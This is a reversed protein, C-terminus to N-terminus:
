CRKFFVTNMTKGYITYNYKKLYNSVRSDILEELSSGLIEILIFRPMYKILDLSRIVEFDLGEVDISLFDIDTGKPINENLVDDLRMTELEVISEIWYIGRSNRDESISKCFGNLAPENFMYYKLIGPNESIPIEINLDRPRLRDFVKMSGPKADINIGNWGKKYFLYTNSFRKPHHAGVDIYFGDNKKEFIRRLVMDEGEQSYSKNWCRTFYKRKFMLIIGLLNKPIFKKIKKQM